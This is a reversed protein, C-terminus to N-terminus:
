FSLVPVAKLEPHCLAPCHRNIGKERRFAADYEAAKKGGSAPLYDSNGGRSYGRREMLELTGRGGGPVAGPFVKNFNWASRAFQESFQRRMGQDLEEIITWFRRRRRSFRRVPNKFPMASPWKRALRRHCQRQCPWPGRIEAKLHEIQKKLEAASTM